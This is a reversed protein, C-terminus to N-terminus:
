ERPGPKWDDKFNSSDAVWANYREDVAKKLELDQHQRWFIRITTLIKILLERTVVSAVIAFVSGIIQIM